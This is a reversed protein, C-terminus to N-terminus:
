ARGDHAAEKAFDDRAFNRGLDDELVLVDEREFVNVGARWRVREHDRLPVDDPHAVRLRLIRRQEALQHECRAFDALQETDALRPIADDRVLSGVRPLAYKVQM